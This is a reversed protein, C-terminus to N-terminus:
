YYNGKVFFLSLAVALCGLLVGLVGTNLIRYNGLGGARLFLVVLSAFLNNNAFEKYQRGDQEFHALLEPIQPHKGLTELQAAEEHFLRDAKESATNPPFSQKIACQSFILPKTEDVALFSRGFGGQGIPKVTRYRSASPSKEDVTLLLKSGCSQCLEADGPNQPNHCTPNLCYSM